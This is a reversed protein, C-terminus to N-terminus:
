LVMELPERTIFEVCTHAPDPLKSLLGALDPDSAIVKAEKVAIWQDPYVELLAELNQNVWVHDAEFALLKNTIQSNM